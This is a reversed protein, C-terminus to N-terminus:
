TVSIYSKPFNIGLVNIYAINEGTAALRSLYSLSTVVEKNLSTPPLAILSNQGLFYPNELIGLVLRRIKFLPAIVEKDKNLGNLLLLTQSSHLCEKASFSGMM